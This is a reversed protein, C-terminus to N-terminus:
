RLLSVTQSLDGPQLPPLDGLTTVHPTRLPNMSSSAVTAFAGTNEAGTGKGQEQLVCSDHFTVQDINLLAPNARLADEMSAADGDTMLSGLLSGPVPIKRRLRRVTEINRMQQMQGLLKACSMPSINLSRRASMGDMEDEELISRTKMKAPLHSLNFDFPKNRSKFKREQTIKFDQAKHFMRITRESHADYTMRRHRLSSKPPPPLVKGEALGEVQYADPFRSANFVTSPAFAEATKSFADKPTVNFFREDRSDVDIALAAELSSKM